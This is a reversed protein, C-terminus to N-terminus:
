PNLRPNRESTDPLLHCQIIGYPLYSETGRLNTVM